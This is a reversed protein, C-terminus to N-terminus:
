AQEQCVQGWGSWYPQWTLGGDYSIEIEMWEWECSMGGGGGDGDDGDGGGACDQLTAADVEPVDVYPDYSEMYIPDRFHGGGGDDCGGIESITGHYTIIHWNYKVYAVSGDPNYFWTNTCEVAAGPNTWKASGDDSIAPSPIASFNAYGFQYPFTHFTVNWAYGGHFTLGGPPRFPTSCTTLETPGQRAQAAADRTPLVLGALAALVAMGRATM